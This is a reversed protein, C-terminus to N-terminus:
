ESETQKELLDRIETLLKVENSPESPAPPPTEEEKKRREAMRNFSRVVLFIVFAVIV